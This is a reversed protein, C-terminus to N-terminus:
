KLLNIKCVNLKNLQTSIVSIMHLAGDIQKENSAPTLNQMIFELVNQM